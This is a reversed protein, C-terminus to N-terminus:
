TQRCIDQCLVSLRHLGEREALRGAAATCRFCARSSSTPPPPTTGEKARARSLPLCPSSGATRNDDRRSHAHSDPAEFTPWHNCHLWQGVKSAHEISAPLVPTSRHSARTMVPRLATIVRAGLGSVM